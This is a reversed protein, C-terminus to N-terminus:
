EGIGCVVKDEGWRHAYKEAADAMVTERSLGEKFGDLLWKLYTGIREAARGDRFPDLDKLIPSWDGFGVIGERSSRHNDYTEWLSGWDNFVVKGKGLEYLNSVSWGDQDMLLTPVGCLASEMGATAANIGDHVSIDAALAAVSPPYSGQIVGESFMYCRGTARADELLKAIPGLRHLLSRPNKPKLVLGFGSDQMVKQLLFAYNDRAFEHDLYWRPDDITNEDFYALIHDAGNKLLLDRVAQAKARLLPFRHDGFYGTTVHYLINSRNQRELVATAKSFGFEIDVSVTASPNPISEYSRQYITTVGGLGQMADSIVLHQSGYKYWSTYVKINFLAFLEAWYSRWWYYEAQKENLWKIESGNGRVKHVDKIRGVRPSYISSFSLRTARPSLAIPKIGHRFLVDYKKQDLPDSSNFMLLIDQGKIDSQQWFFLDSYFERQELNLHGSYETAIRPETKPCLCPHINKKHRFRNIVVFHLAIIFRIPIIRRVIRKFNINLIAPLAILEINYQLAERQIVGFWRRKRICLVVDDHSFDGALVKWASVRILLIANLLHDYTGRNAMDYSMLCKEIYLRLRNEDPINKIFHKFVPGGLIETQVKASDMYMIKLLVSVGEEDHVDQVKYRLKEVSVGIVRATARAVIFAINSSDWYYCLSKKGRAGTRKRILFPM